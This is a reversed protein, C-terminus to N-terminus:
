MVRSSLHYDDSPALRLQTMPPMSLSLTPNHLGTHMVHGYTKDLICHARTTSIYSLTFLPKHLTVPSFFQRVYFGLSAHRCRCPLALIFLNAPRERTGAECNTARTDRSKAKEDDANETKYSDGSRVASNVDRVHTHCPPATQCRPCACRILIVHIPRVRDTPRGRLARNIPRDTSARPGTSWSLTPSTEDGSGVRASLTQHCGASEKPKMLFEYSATHM